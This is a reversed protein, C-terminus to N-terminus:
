IVVQTSTFVFCYICSCIFSHHLSICFEKVGQEIKVFEQSGNAISNSILHSSIGQDENSDTTNNNAQLILFTEHPPSDDLVMEHSEDSEKKSM